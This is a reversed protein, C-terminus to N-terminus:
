HEAPLEATQPPTGVSSCMAEADALATRPGLAWPSKGTVTALAHEFTADHQPRVEDAYAMLEGTHAIAAGPLHHGSASSGIVDRTSAYEDALGLAHGLEDAVTFLHQGGDVSLDVRRHNPDDLTQDAGREGQGDRHVRIPADTLGHAALFASVAAARREALLQNHRESGSSSARGVLDIRARAFAPHTTAGAYTTIFERLAAEAAPTLVDSNLEFHVSGQLLNPQRAHTASGDTVGPLIGHDRLSTDSPLKYAALSLHDDTTEAGVHTEVDVAVDAGLWDWCPQHLVFSREVGWTDEVRAELEALWRTQETADTWRYSTLATTRAPEPLARMRAALATIAPTAPLDPHPVIADSSELLTDAFRTAVGARVDLVGPGGFPIYTASFGGIGAGGITDLPGHSDSAWTKADGLQECCAPGSTPATAPDM